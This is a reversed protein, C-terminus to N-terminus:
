PHDESDSAEDTTVEDNAGGGTFTNAISRLYGLWGSTSGNHQEIESDSDDSGALSQALEYQFEPDSDPQQHHQDFQRRFSDQINEPSPFSPDEEGDLPPYPDHM